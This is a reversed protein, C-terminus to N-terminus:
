RGNADGARAPLVLVEELSNLDVFPKVQAQRVLGGEEGSVETVIGIPIGPPFVKGSGSTVIRDGRRVDADRHFFKMRLEDGRNPMGVVVGQARSTERQVLAGVGSQPDTTMMVTASHPTVRTVRGVLGRPTIVTMNDTVGKKAGRNIVAYSFWADPNRGTVRAALYEGPSGGTMGTGQVELLEKLRRNEQRLEEVQSELLELRRLRQELAANERRLEALNVFHDGARRGASVSRAVVAQLPALVEQIVGGLMEIRPTEIPTSRMTLVVLFFALSGVLLRIRM